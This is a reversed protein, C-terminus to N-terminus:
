LCRCLFLPNMGRNFGHAKESIKQLKIFLVTCLACGLKEGFLRFCNVFIPKVLDFM